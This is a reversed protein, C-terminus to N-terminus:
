IEHIFLGPPLRIGELTEEGEKEVVQGEWWREKIEQRLDSEKDREGYFRESEVSRTGNIRM